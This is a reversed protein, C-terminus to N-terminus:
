RRERIEAVISRVMQGVYECVMEDANIPECAFLGWNHISSKSFRLAKKRRKFYLFFNKFKNM